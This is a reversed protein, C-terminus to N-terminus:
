SIVSSHRETSVETSHISEEEREKNGQKYLIPHKERERHGMKEMGNKWGNLLWDSHQLFLVGDM